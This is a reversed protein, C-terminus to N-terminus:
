CLLVSDIRRELEKEGKVIKMEVALVFLDIHSPVKSLLGELKVADKQTTVFITTKKPRDRLMMREIDEKMYVHHDLFSFAKQINAKLDYVTKKFAKPNGIASFLCVDKHALFSPDHCQQPDKLNILKIPQYVAEVFIAHFNNAKIQQYVRSLNEPALDVKTLVIVDARKLATLPERLFGRPMLFSNSFADTTDITVVDLDRKVKWHQFGDDLLFVNIDPHDQLAKRSSLVRDKGQEVPIDQLMQCYLAVEDSFHKSTMYGRTLIAPRRGKQQLMKALFGVLPTKGTGGLTLNGVSITPKALYRQRLAGTQYCLLICRSGLFYIYSLGRLCGKIFRSIVDCRDQVILDSLYKKIM